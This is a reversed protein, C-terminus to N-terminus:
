TPKSGADVTQGLFILFILCKMKKQFFFLSGLLIRMKYRMVISSGIPSLFFVRLHMFNVVRGRVEAGGGVFFNDLKAIVGLFIWLTKM